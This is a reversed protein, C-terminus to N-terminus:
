SERTAPYGPSVAALTLSKKLLAEKPTGASGTSDVVLGRGSTVMVRSLFVPTGCM